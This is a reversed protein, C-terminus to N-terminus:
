SKPLKFCSMFYNPIAVIVLKILTKTGIHSLQENKWGQIKRCIREKLFDLARVKSRGWIIPIGLYKGLRAEAGISPSHCVITKFSYKVYVFDLKM